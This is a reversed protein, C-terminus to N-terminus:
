RCSRQRTRRGTGPESVINLAEHGSPSPNPLRESEMLVRNPMQKVRYIWNGAAWLQGGSTRLLRDIFDLPQGARAVIVGDSHIQALGNLRLAAFLGGKSDPILDIVMGLSKSKPLPVWRARDDSLVAVGEQGNGAFLKNGVRCIRGTGGFGERATWYELRLPEPWYYLGKPGGLWITGDTATMAVNTDPMGHAPTVSKFNGPRGMVLGGKNVFLMSGASDERISSGKAAVFAPLEIPEPDGPCQYTTFAQTRSWVCGFRDRSFLIAFGPRSQHMSLPLQSGSHWEVIDKVSTEGWAGAFPILLTASHNDLSFTVPWPLPIIKDLQWATGNRRIRFLSSQHSLDPAAPAILALVVGSSAAVARALGPMVLKLAGQYFRYLGKESAIWIAGEGDETIAIAGVAPLGLEVLSYFRSGDFCAVDKGGGVWLRGLHDQFILRVNPPAGPVYIFPLQQGFLLNAWLLLLFDPFSPKRVSSSNDAYLRSLDSLLM